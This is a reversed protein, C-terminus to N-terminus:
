LQIIYFASVVLLKLFIKVQQKTFRLFSLFLLYLNQAKWCSYENLVDLIEPQSSMGRHVPDGHSTQAETISSGQTGRKCVQGSSRWEKSGPCESLTSCRGKSFSLYCHPPFFPVTLFFSLVGMIEKPNSLLISILSFWSPLTSDKSSDQLIKIQLSGRYVGRASQPTTM